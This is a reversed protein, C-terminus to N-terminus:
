ELVPVAAERVEAVMKALREAADVLRYYVEGTVMEAYGIHKDVANAGTTLLLVEEAVERLSQEPPVTKKKLARKNLKTCTAAAEAQTRWAALDAKRAQRFLPIDGINGVREIVAFRADSTHNMELIGHFKFAADKVLNMPPMELM